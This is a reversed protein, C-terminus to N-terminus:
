SARRFAARILADREYDLLCDKDCRHLISILDDELRSLHEAIQRDMQAVDALASQRATNLEASLSVLHRQVEKVIVSKIWRIIM